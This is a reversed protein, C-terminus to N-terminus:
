KWGMSKGYRSYHKDLAAFLYTLGAYNGDKVSIIADSYEDSTWAIDMADFSKEKKRAKLIDNWIKENDVKDDFAIEFEDGNNFMDDVHEWSPLIFKIGKLSKINFASDYNENVFGEFDNVNKM